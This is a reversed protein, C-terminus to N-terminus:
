ICYLKTFLPRIKTRRGVTESINLKKPRSAVLPRSALVKRDQAFGSTLVWRYVCWIDLKTCFRSLNQPVSTTIYIWIDSISRVEKMWSNYNKSYISEFRANSTSLQMNKLNEKQWYQYQTLIFIEKWLM